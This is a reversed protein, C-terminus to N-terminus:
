YVSTRHVAVGPSQRYAAPCSMGEPEKERVVPSQTSSLEGLPTPPLSAGPCPQVLMGPCGCRRQSTSAMDRSRTRPVTSKHGGRGDNPRGLRSRCLRAGRSQVLDRSSIKRYAPLIARPVPGAQVKRRRSNQAQAPSILRSNITGRFSMDPPHALHSSGYHLSYPSESAQETQSVPLSTTSWAPRFHLAPFVPELQEIQAGTASDQRTSIAHLAPVAPQVRVVLRLQLSGLGSEHPSPSVVKVGNQRFELADPTPVPTKTVSIGAIGERPNAKPNTNPLLTIRSTQRKCHARAPPIAPCPHSRAM